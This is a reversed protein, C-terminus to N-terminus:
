RGKVQDMTVISSMTTASADTQLVKLLRAIFDTAGSPVMDLKFSFETRGIWESSRINMPNSYWIEKRKM